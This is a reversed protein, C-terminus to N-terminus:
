DGTGGENTSADMTHDNARHLSAEMAERDLDGFDPLTNVMEKLHAIRNLMFGLALKADMFLAQEEDTMSEARGQRLQDMINKLAMGWLGIPLFANICDQKPNTKVVPASM